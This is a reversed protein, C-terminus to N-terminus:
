ELVGLGNTVGRAWSGNSSPTYKDMIAEPTTLGKDIYNAKLGKAVTEIAESYSNFRKLKNGYIGWGWCNHSNNPIFKCATSEQMAIAPILRFDLEYADSVKVIFDAHDYLPSEHRRFFAKLIAIRRDKINSDFFFELEQNEFGEGSLQDFEQLILTISRSRATNAYIRTSVSINIVIFLVFFVSLFVIKKTM